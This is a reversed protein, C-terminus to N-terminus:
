KRFKRRFGVFGILASAVLFITSPEPVPSGVVWAGDILNPADALPDMSLYVQAPGAPNSFVVKHVAPQDLYPKFLDSTRGDLIDTGPVPTFPLAFIAPAGYDFLGLVENVSAIRFGTYGTFSLGSIATLQDAYSKNLFQVLNTVWVKGAADDLVLQGGLESILTASSTGPLILFFASLFIFASLILIGTGLSNRLSIM